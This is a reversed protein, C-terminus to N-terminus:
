DVASTHICHILYFYGCKKTGPSYMKLTQMKRGCRSLMNSAPLTEDRHRGAGIEFFIVHEGVMGLVNVVFIPIIGDVRAAALRRNRIYEWELLRSFM